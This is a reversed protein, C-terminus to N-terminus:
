AARAPKIGFEPLIDREYLKFFREQDTGVQHLYIHDVGAKLVKRNEGFTKKCESWM